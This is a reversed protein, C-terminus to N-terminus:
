LQVEVWIGLRFIRTGDERKKDSTLEYSSTLGGRINEDFQYTLGPTISLRTTNRDVVSSLNGKTEDFNQEYALALSSTLENKIHIKRDTFPISFGRGERYSYSFSGNLSQSDMTKLIQYTEM